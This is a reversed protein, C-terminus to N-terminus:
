NIGLMSVCGSPVSQQDKVLPRMTDGYKLKCQSVVQRDMVNELNCCLTPDTPPINEPLCEGGESVGIAMLLLVAALETWLMNCSHSIGCM